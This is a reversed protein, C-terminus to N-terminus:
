RKRSLTRSAIGRHRSRPVADRWSSLRFVFGVWGDRTDGEFRGSLRGFQRWYEHKECAM